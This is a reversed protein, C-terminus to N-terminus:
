PAGCALWEGLKLRNAESPRPESPPMVQNIGNPGGAAYEDIEASYLRVTELEDWNAELPAGNRQDRTTFSSNHCRTCHDAFFGRAWGEYTLTSSSPCTAGTTSHFPPQRDAPEPDADACGAPLTLVGFFACGHLLRSVDM